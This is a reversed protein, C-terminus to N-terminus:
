AVLHLLVAIPVDKPFRNPFWKAVARVLLPACYAGGAVLVVAFALPGAIVMVLPAVVGLVAVASLWKAWASMELGALWRTVAGNTRKRM